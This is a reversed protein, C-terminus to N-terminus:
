DHPPPVTTQVSMHVKRPPHNIQDLADRVADRMWRTFHSKLDSNFLQDTQKTLRTFLAVPAAARFASQAVPEQQELVIRNTQLDQLTKLAKHYDRTHRARYRDLTSLPNATAPDDFPIPLRALLALEMDRIQDLCFSAHALQEFVDLEAKNAPQYDSLLATRHAEFADRFNEPVGRASLGHKRANQASKAKGAASTPGTSKKANNRCAALKVASIKKSAPVTTRM